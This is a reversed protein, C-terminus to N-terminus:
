DRGAMKQHHASRSALKRGCLAGGAEVIRNYAAFRPSQCLSEKGHILIEGFARAGRGCPSLRKEIADLCSDEYLLAVTGTGLKGHLYHALSIVQQRESLMTRFLYPSKVTDLENGAAVPSVTILRAAHYRPIAALTCGTTLHGVVAVIKQHNAINKALQIARAPEAKDDVAILRVTRECPKRHGEKDDMRLRAGRLMSCGYEALAGSLPAVMAIFIPRDDGKIESTHGSSLCLLFFVSLPPILVPIIRKMTSTRRFDYDTRNPKSFLAAAAATLFM